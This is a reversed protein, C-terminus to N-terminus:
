QLYGCPKEGIDKNSEDLLQDFSQNHTKERIRLIDPLFVLALIVVSHRNVGFVHDTLGRFMVTILASVYVWKKCRIGLVLARILMILVFLFGFLGLYAHVFLYSNHLNGDYHVAWKVDELNVGFLLSLPNSAAKEIYEAWCALRGGGDMGKDLFRTVVYLGSFKNVFIQLIVLLVPIMAVFLILGLIVRERRTVEDRFFRYLIIGGLLLTAALLGGRGGALLSMVWVVIAPILPIKKGRMELLSYYLVVPMILHVSIYNNSSDVYVPAQRGNLFLKVAVVAANLYMAVLFIREDVSEDLFIMAFLFSFLLIMVKIENLNGVFLINCGGLIVAIAAFVLVRNLALRRKTFFYIVAGTILVLYFFGSAVSSKVQNVLIVAIFYLLVVGSFIMKTLNPYGYENITIDDNM